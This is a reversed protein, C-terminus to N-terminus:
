PVKKRVDVSMKECRAELARRLRNALLAIGKGRLEHEWVRIVLWGRHRLELTVKRDRARNTQIKTTWFEANSAPSKFHTPCGHWFCGDVFLALREAPFAFDPRGPLRSNRRWGKVSSARLLTVMRLETSKNGKGRVRSMVESHTLSVGRLGTRRAKLAAKHTVKAQTNVM